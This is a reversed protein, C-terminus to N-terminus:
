PTIGSGSESQPKCYAPKPQCKPCITKDDRMTWGTEKAKKAAEAIDKGQFTAYRTCKGCIMRLSGQLPKTYEPPPFNMLESEVTSHRGM